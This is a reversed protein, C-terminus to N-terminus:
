NADKGGTLYVPKGMTLKLVVSKINQLEQPLLHIVSNYVYAINEAVEGDKMSEIGVTCRLVPENKPKIEVLNQFKKYIDAIEAKSKLIAGSKPNPMKGKPGLFKGISAALKPMVKAEAVFWDYERVLQKADKKKGVITLLETDLIVKDYSNKADILFEQSVLACIKRKKGPSYPLFMFSEIKKETNKLDFNKLNILLDFRQSFKLKKTKERAEHVFKEIDEKKM